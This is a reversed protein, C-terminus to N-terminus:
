INFIAYNLQRSFRVGGTHGFLTHQEDLDGERDDLQGATKTWQEDREGDGSVGERLGGRGARRDGQGTGPQQAARAPGTADRRAGGPGAQQQVASLLFSSSHSSSIIFLTSFLYCSM